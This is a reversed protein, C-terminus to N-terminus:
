YAFDETMRSKEVLTRYLGSSRMLQDHTGSSDVRGDNMVIIKDAKEISKLRHSVIIVTKGEILRNLSKQIARENEVDLSASIEDLLLIPANKLFARAISIRQREGGSLRSGNEGILTDYGDPLRLIFEECNALRAAEKVEDDGADPSGMRINDLVSANFLIVDQFVFSIKEFLSDTSVDKIDRGDIVIKGSDYDYLRSMLRLVTSKGCGSPGVIATVENQGATFSVDDVVKRDSDYGFSVHELGIDFRALECRKGEQIEVSRLEGIRRVRADIYMLEAFSEEIAGVADVLRVSALLFGIVYILQVANERLLASSVLTVTGLALKMFSVSVLMPSGMVVESKLRLRESSYLAEAAKESKEKALGYSKIERQLEITEQFTETNERTRQFYKMSWKKQANRAIYMMMFGALLPLIVAAGLMPNSIILMIGVLVLFFAYAICRPMAHSMAHEIDLVDQMITQALDSIDHRSFYSLPLQKIREALELRLDKAEMYTANYTMVYERDIFVTAAAVVAASILVYHWPSLIRGDLFNSGFYLAVMMFAMYGVNALFSAVSAKEVAKIGKETLGFKEKLFSKM